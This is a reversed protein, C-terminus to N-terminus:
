KFKVNTVHAARTCRQFSIVDSITGFYHRLSLCLVFFFLLLHFIHSIAIVRICMVYKMEWQESMWMRCCLTPHSSPRPAAHSLLKKYCFFDHCFFFLRFLSRLISLSHSCVVAHRFPSPSFALSIIYLVGLTSAVYICFILYVYHKDIDATPMWYSQSHASRSYKINSVM